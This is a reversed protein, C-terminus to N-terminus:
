RMTSFCLFNLPIRPFYSFFSLKQPHIMFVFDSVDDEDIKKVKNMKSFRPAKNATEEFDLCNKSREVLSNRLLLFYFQSPV